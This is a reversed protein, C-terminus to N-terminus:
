TIATKPKKSILYVGVIVMFCSIIKFINIDASYTKNNFLLTLLIVIIFSIAPQTYTYSGAVSPSVQKLAYINFLFTFFTTFVIVFGIVLYTNLNFAEYNTNYIVDKLGFPIIFLLGFLFVWSIITIFHYKNMLPKVVVQYLSFFCVNLFVLLNGIFSSNGHTVQGYWILSIAGIAGISLGLLKYNTIKEKLIIASFVFVVAPASTMIISTDIPSTLSLGHFFTLQNCSAGLLGCLILRFFDKKEVKEKIFFKVCWFLIGAGLVRFFVLPTANIKEPM